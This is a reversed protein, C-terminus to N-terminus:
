TPTSQAETPNPTRTRGCNWWAIFAAATVMSAVGDFAGLSRAGLHEVVLGGAWTMYMIPLSGISNLLIYQGSKGEGRVGIIQLVVGTYCAFSLGRAFNSFLLGVILTVPHLPGAAVVLCVAGYLLGTFAYLTTANHRVPMLVACMAGTATLVGGGFGRGVALQPLSAGYERTLGSMLTSMAGSGIPSLLLLIGPISGTRLFTQKLDEAVVRLRSEYSTGANAPLPEPVALVAFAPVVILLVAVVALLQNSHRSALMLLLGGGMSAAGLNGAQVWGGVRVREEPRLLVGMLGETAASVLMAFAYAGFLLATIVNVTVTGLLRIALGTRAASAFAASLLWMRRRIWFDVIPAYLACLTGPLSALALVAGTNGLSLGSQSLLFPLLM